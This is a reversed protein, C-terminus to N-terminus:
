RKRFVILYHDAYKAFYPKDTIKSELNQLISVLAPKSKLWPELYSPPVFLGIPNIRKSRFYPSAMAITQNPNHYYVPINEGDVNATLNSHERRYVLNFKGKAVFYIKEWITNKPMIVLVLQGKESLLESATKFFNTLEEKSLCNLGGFNSFIMDFRYGSFKTTLKNCDAVRFDLNPLTTKQKAIAVMEESIDTATVSFNQKALWIADEGTGCNIELITKPPEAKLIQTLHQYVSKRQLSGIVSHTFTKDYNTAAIDFGTTM